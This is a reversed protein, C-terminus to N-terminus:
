GLAFLATETQPLERDIAPLTGSPPVTAINIVPEVQQAFLWVVGCGLLLAVGWLSRYILKAM